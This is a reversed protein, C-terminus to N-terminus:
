AVPTLGPGLKPICLIQKNEKNYFILSAFYIFGKPSPKQFQGWLALQFTYLYELAIVCQLNESKKNMKLIMQSRLGSIKKTFDFPENRSKRLKVIKTQCLKFVGTKEQHGLLDQLPRLPNLNETQFELYLELYVEVCEPAM